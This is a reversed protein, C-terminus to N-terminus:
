RVIHHLTLHSVALDFQKGELSPSASDVLMEKIAKIRLREAAKNIKSTLVDIM